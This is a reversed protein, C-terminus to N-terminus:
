RDPGVPVHGLVPEVGEHEEVAPVDSRGRRRRVWRLGPEIAVLLLLSLASALAGLPLGPPVFRLAVTHEGSPVPIGIVAGNTRLVPADAGDVTAEWGETWAVSLVLLADRNAEVIVRPESRLDASLVDGAAGSGALTVELPEEVLAKRTLPTAPDALRERVEELPAIEAGAVLYADAFRPTRTWRIFSGDPIPGERRWGKGTPTIDTPLVLTTVRLVDSIWSESWLDPRNPFGLYSLGAVTEAYDAQILPDYGNVARAGTVLPVARFAANSAWRDLGGRADFPEGFQPTGDPDFFAAEQARPLGSGSWEAAHAFTVLDFVVVAVLLAPGARPAHPALLTATLLLIVLVVPLGRAVLGFSGPALVRGLREVHPLLLAGAAIAAIAGVLPAIARRPVELVTRVGAGALLALVLQTLLATRGWARLGSAFPVTRYVIEGVPTSDALAVLLAIVGLALSAWVVRERRRAWAGIGALVLVTVGAYALVEHVPWPGALFPSEFGPKQSAGGFAYPFVLNVLHKPHMPYEFAEAQTLRPRGSTRSFLWLPVLQVAALGLGLGTAVLLRLDSRHRARQELSIGAAYVVVGIGTIWLLQPNGLSSMMALPVALALARRTTWRESVLDLGLFILPLWALGAFWNMHVLHFVHFGCLALSVGSVVAGPVSRWRRYSWAYMGGATLALHLVLWWRHANTAELWGFLVNPPYFIAAQGAGLMNFGSFTTPDWWPARGARIARWVATYYAIHQDHVDGYIATRSGAVVEWFPLLSLLVTISLGRWHRRVREIM